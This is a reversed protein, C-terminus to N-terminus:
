SKPIRLIWGIFSCWVWDIALLIGVTLVALVAFMLAAMLDSLFGSLFNFM